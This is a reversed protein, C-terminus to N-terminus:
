CYARRQVSEISRIQGFDDGINRRLLGLMCNAKSIVMSTQNNWKLNASVMVRLDKHSVTSTLGINNVTYNQKVLNLKHSM